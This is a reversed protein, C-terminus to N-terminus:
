ILVEGKINKLPIRIKEGTKIEEPDDIKNEKLIEKLSVGYKKAIRTLSEGKKVIHDVVKVVRLTWATECVPSTGLNQVAITGACIAWLFIFLGGFVFVTKRKM